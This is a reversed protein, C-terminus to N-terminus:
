METVQKEQRRVRPCATSLAERDMMSLYFIQFGFQSQLLNFEPLLICVYLSQYSFYSLLCFFKVLLPSHCVSLLLLHPRM